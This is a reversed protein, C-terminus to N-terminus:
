VKGCVEESVQLKPHGAAVLMPVTLAAFIVLPYVEYKDWGAVGLAFGVTSSATNQLMANAFAGPAKPGQYFDAFVGKNTSEYVGRAMGQLLYFVTIGWGWGGPGKGDPASVFSLVAIAVFCLSGVAVVQVKSGARASVWQFVRSSVTAILCIVAGLFGILNSALDPDNTASTIATGM